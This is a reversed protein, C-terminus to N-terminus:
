AQLLLRNSIPSTWTLQILYQPIHKPTYNAEPSTLSSGGYGNECFCSYQWEYYATIKNRQDAQWTLRLSSDVHIVKNLAPQNPDATYFLGTPTANNFLGPVGV